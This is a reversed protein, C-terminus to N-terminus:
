EHGARAVARRQMQPAQSIQRQRRSARREVIQAKRPSCWCYGARMSTVAVRLAARVPREVELPFEPAAAHGGDVERAVEAVM